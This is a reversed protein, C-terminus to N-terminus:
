WIEVNETQYVKFNFNVVDRRKNEVAYMIETNLQTLSITIILYYQNNYKNVSISIDDTTIDFVYATIQTSLKERLDGAALVDIDQFRISQINLGAEPISPMDGPRM